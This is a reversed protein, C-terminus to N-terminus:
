SKSLLDYVLSDDLSLTAVEQKRISESIYLRGRTDLISNLHNVTYKTQAVFYKIPNM